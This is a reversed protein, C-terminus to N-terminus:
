CPHSIRDYKEGEKGNEEKGLCIDTCVFVFVGVGVCGCVCVCV